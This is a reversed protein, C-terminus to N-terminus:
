LLWITMSVMRLLHIFSQILHGRIGQGPRVYGGHETEPGAHGRQKQGAESLRHERQLMPHVRHQRESKPYGTDRGSRSHDRTQRGSRPHTRDRRSRPHGRNEARASDAQGRLLLRTLVQSCVAGALAAELTRKDQLLREVEVWLHTDRPPAPKQRSGHGSPAAAQLARTTAPAAPRPRPGIFRPRGAGPFDITGPCTPPITSCIHADARAARVTYAARHKHLRNPRGDREGRGQCLGRASNTDTRARGVGM